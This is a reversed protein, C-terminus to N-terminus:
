TRREVLTMRPLHLPHLRLLLILPPARAAQLRPLHLPPLHLLLLLPPGRAAKRSRTREWTRREVLTIRSGMAATKVQTLGKGSTEGGLSTM